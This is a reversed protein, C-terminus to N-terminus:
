KGQVQFSGGEFESSPNPLLPLLVDQLGKTILAAYPEQSMLQCIAPQPLALRNDHKTRQVAAFLILCIMNLERIVSFRVNIQSARHGWHELLGTKGSALGTQYIQLIVKIEVTPSETVLRNQLSRNRVLCKRFWRLLSLLPIPIQSEDGRLCCNGLTDDMSSKYRWSLGFRWVLLVIEDTGPSLSPEWTTLISLLSYLSDTKMKSDNCDASPQTDISSGKNISLSLLQNLTCTENFAAYWLHLLSVIRDRSLGSQQQNAKLYSTVTALLEFFGSTDRALPQSRFNFSANTPWCSNKGEATKKKGIFPPKCSGSVM